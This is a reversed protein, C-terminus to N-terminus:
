EDSEAESSIRTLRSEISRALSANTRIFHILEEDPLTDTNVPTLMQYNAVFAFCDELLDPWLSMDIRSQLSDLYLCVSSACMMLSEVAGRSSHDGPLGSPLHMDAMDEATFDENFKMESGRDSRPTTVAYCFALFRNMKHIFVPTNKVLRDRESIAHLERQRDRDSRVDIESKMSGVANLFFGITVLGCLVEVATIWQAGARCPTYDGFGLTTITVISYYVWDGFGAGGNDPIRFQGDPLLWYFLAFLPVLCLYLSIWFIPRINSVEHWFHRLADSITKKSDM